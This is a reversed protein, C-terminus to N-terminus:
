AKKNKNVGSSSMSSNNTNEEYSDAKADLTNSDSVPSFLRTQNVDNWEETEKGKLKKSSLHNAVLGLLPLKFNDIQELSETLLSKNTKDIATVLLIGDTNVSLFGATVSHLLPPTDYIVYDYNAKFESMLSERELSNELAKQSAILIFLNEEAKQASVLKDPLQYNFSNADVLLVKKGRAAIQKALHLAVTSRGDGKTPSCIAISRISKHRYRLSINAYLKDFANLFDYNLSDIPEIEPIYSAQSSIQPKSPLKKNEISLLNPNFPIEGLIPFSAISDEIDDVSYFSNRNREIL